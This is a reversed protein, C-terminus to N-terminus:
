VTVSMEVPLARVVLTLRIQLRLSHRNNSKRVILDDIIDAVHQNLNELMTFAVELGIELALLPWRTLLIAFGERGLVFWGLGGRRGAWWGIREGGRSLHRLWLPPFVSVTGELDLFRGVVLGWCDLGLGTRWLREEM